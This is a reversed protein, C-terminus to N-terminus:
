VKTELGSKYSRNGIIKELESYQKKREFVLVLENIMMNYEMKAEDFLDFFSNTSLHNTFPNLWVTHNENCCDNIDHCKDNYLLPTAMHYGMIKTELLECYKGKAGNKDSMLRLAITIERFIVKCVEASLHSGYLCNTVAYSLQNSIVEREIASLTVMDSVNYDSPKKGDMKELLRLDIDSELEFHKGLVRNNKETGVFSYVYPHTKCDLYYHALFGAAYAIEIWSKTNINNNRLYAKKLLCNLFKGTNEEHLRGAFNKENGTYNGIHYFFLDPGQTGLVFAHPYRAIAEKIFSNKLNKYCYFGFRYHSFFAPM